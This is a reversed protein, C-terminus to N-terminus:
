CCCTGARGGTAAPTVGGAFASTGAPTSTPAGHAAAVAAVAPDSSNDVVIVALAGDLRGLCRDFLDPAHFAVVVVLPGGGVSAVSRHPPDPDTMAGTRAPRGRRRAHVSRPDLGDESTMATPVRLGPLQGIHHPPRPETVLGLVTCGTSELRSATRELDTRDTKGETAVVIAGHTLSGLIATDPAALVPPTDLLIVDALLHLQDLVPQMGPSDFLESPNDRHVGM